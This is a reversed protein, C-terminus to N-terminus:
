EVMSDPEDGWEEQPAPVKEEEKGMAEGLKKPDEELIGVDEELHKAKGDVKEEFSKVEEKVKTEMESKEDSRGCCYGGLMLQVTVIIMCLKNM